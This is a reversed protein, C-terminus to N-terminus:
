DDLEGADAVASLSEISDALNAMEVAVRAAEAGKEAARAMAQEDTNTTLVANAVPMAFDLSVRAIGAASENSVVEFHYTEGRIVAGLAILADFEETQALKDLAFPIELAGPVTCVFIDEEEVGLELLESVCAARLAECVPANFRAQVVGIRLGEGDLDAEFVDVTM